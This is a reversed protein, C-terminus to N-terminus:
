INVSLLFPEITVYAITAISLLVSLLRKWKKLSFLNVIVIVQISGKRSPSGKM